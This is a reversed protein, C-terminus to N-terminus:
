FIERLTGLLPPQANKIDQMIASKIIKSTNQMKSTSVMKITYHCKTQSYQFIILIFDYFEMLYDLHAGTFNIISDISKWIFLM